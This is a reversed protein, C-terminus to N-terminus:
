TSVQRREPVVWYLVFMVGPTASVYIAVRERKGPSMRLRAQSGIIAKEDRRAIFLARASVNYWTSDSAVLAGCDLANM